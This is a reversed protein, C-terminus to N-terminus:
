VVPYTTFGHYRNTTPLPDLCCLYYEPWVLYSCLEFNVTWLENWGSGWLPHGIYYVFCFCMCFLAYDMWKFNMDLYDATSSLAGARVRWSLMIQETNLGFWISGVSQQIFRLWLRKQKPVFLCFLFSFLRFVCTRMIELEFYLGRERQLMIWYEPLVLNQRGYSRMQHTSLYVFLVFLILRCM